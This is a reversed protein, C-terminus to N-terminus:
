SRLGAQKDAAEWVHDRVHIQILANDRHHIHYHFWIESKLSICADPKFYGINKRSNKKMKITSKEESPNFFWFNM